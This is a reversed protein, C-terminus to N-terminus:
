SEVGVVPKVCEASEHAPSNVVNSVAYAEMKEAPYSRLLPLLREPEHVAPTLWLDYDEPDLIAPMRDHFPSVVENATTTIITCSEIPDGGETPEWRDWLGAFGFPKRDRGVIYFPQKARGKTQWEYFGDAMIICRRDQLAKRFAPKQAVTEARANIMRSGISLDKAWFPVLGWRMLKFQRDGTLVLVTAVPQTPAINYRPLLDPVKGLGFHKALDDIQTQLTFRGCM